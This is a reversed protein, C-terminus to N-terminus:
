VNRNCTSPRAKKQYSQYKSCSVRGDKVDELFHYQLVDLRSRPTDMLLIHISEDLEFAMDAYKGPKMVQVVQGLASEVYRCFTSKGGGGTPDVIFTITRDGPNVVRVLAYIEEQWPKLLIDPASPVPRYNILMQNMISPYKFACM